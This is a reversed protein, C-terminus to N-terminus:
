FCRSPPKNQKSKRPLHQGYSKFLNTFVASYVESSAEKWVIVETGKRKPVISLCPIFFCAFSFLDFLFLFMALIRDTGSKSTIVGRRQYNASFIYMGATPENM